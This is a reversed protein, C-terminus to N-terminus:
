QESSISYRPNPTWDVLVEIQLVLKRNLLLSTSRVHHSATEGIATGRCWVWPVISRWMYLPIKSFFISGNACPTCLRVNVKWSSFSRFCEDFSKHVHISWFIQWKSQGLWDGSRFIMSGIYSIMSFFGVPLLVVLTASFNLCSSTSHVFISWIYMSLNISEMGRQHWDMILTFSKPVFYQTQRILKECQTTM